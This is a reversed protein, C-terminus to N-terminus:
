VGSRACPACTDYLLPLVTGKRERINRSHAAAAATSTGAGASGAAPPAPVGDGGERVEEVTVTGPHGLVWM